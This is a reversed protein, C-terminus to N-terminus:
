CTQKANAEWSVCMPFCVKNTPDCQFAHGNFWPCYRPIWDAVHTVSAGFSLIGVRLAVWCLTEVTTALATDGAVAMSRRESFLSRLDILHGSLRGPRWSYCSPGFQSVLKLYTVVYPNAKWLTVVYKTWQLSVTCLKLYICWSSHTTKANHVCM